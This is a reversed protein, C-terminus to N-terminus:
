PQSRRPKPRVSGFRREEMSEMVQRINMKGDGPNETELRPEGAKRHAEPQQALRMHPWDAFSFTGTTKAEPYFEGDEEGGSEKGGRYIRLLRIGFQDRAAHGAIVM